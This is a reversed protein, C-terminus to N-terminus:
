TLLTQLYCQSFMKDLNELLELSFPESYDSINGRELQTTLLYSHRYSYWEPMIMLVDM